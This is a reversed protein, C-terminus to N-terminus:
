PLLLRCKGLLIINIIISTQGNVKLERIIAWPVCGCLQQLRAMYRKKQCDEFAEIQCGKNDDTQQLFSDTGTMQKIASMAFRGARYATFGSLTNLYIRASTDDHIIPNLSFTMHKNINLIEPKGNICDNDKGTDIIVLLEYDLGPRTKNTNHQSINLEYCVQGELM